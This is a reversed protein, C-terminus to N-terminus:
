ERGATLPLGHRRWARLGGDVCRADLGFRRAAQAAMASRRGTRCLFALPRDAPLEAFRGRLESLPLHVAGPVLGDSLEAAERVDVLVLRAHEHLDRAVAPDIRTTRRAVREGRGPRRAM